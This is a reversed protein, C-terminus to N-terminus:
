RAVAAPKPQAALFKGGRLFWLEANRCRRQPTVARIAGSRSAEGIGQTHFRLERRAGERHQNPRVDNLSESAKWSRGVLTGGALLLLRQLRYQAVGM